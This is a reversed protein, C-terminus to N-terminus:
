AHSSVVADVIRDHLPGLSAFVVLAGAALGVLASV